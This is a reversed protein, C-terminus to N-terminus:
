KISDFKTIGANQRRLCRLAVTRKSEHTCDGKRSQCMTYRDTGGSTTIGAGADNNNDDNERDGHSSSDPPPPIVAVAGATADDDSTTNTNANSGFAM